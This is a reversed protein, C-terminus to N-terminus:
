QVQNELLFEAKRWVRKDGDVFVIEVVVAVPLRQQKMWTELKVHDQAVYEFHASKVGTLLIVRRVAGLIKGQLLRREVVLNADDDVEYRLHYLGGIERTGDAVAIFEISNAKGSFYPESSNTEDFQFVPRVDALTERFHRLVLDVEIQQSIGATVRSIDRLSAIANVAYIAMLSLLALSVLLEVLTFGADRRASV